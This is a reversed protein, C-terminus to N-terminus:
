GNEHVCSNSLLALMVLAPIEGDFEIKISLQNIITKFKNSHQAVSMYEIMKLNSLKTLLHVKNNTSSKEYM